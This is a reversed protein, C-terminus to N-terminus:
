SPDLEAEPLNHELHALYRQAQSDNVQLHDSTWNIQPMVQHAARVSTPSPKRHMTRTTPPPTNHPFRESNPNTPYPAPTGPKAPHINLRYTAPSDLHSCRRTLTRTSIWSPRSSSGWDVTNHSMDRRAHRHHAITHSQAIGNPM